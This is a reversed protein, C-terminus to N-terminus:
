FEGDYYIEGTYYVVKSIISSYIIDEFIFMGENYMEGEPINGVLICPRSGQQFNCRIAIKEIFSTAEEKTKFFHYFGPGINEDEESYACTCDDRMLKNLRIESNTFITHYKVNHAFVMNAWNRWVTSPFSDFLFDNTDMSEVAVKYVTLGNEGATKFEKTRIHCM